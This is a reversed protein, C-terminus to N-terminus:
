YKSIDNKPVICRVKFDAPQIIARAPLSLGYSPAQYSQTSEILISSALLHFVDEYLYTDVKKKVVQMFGPDDRKPQNTLQRQQALITLHREDQDLITHEAIISLKEPTAKLKLQGNGPTKVTFQTHGQPSGELILELRHLFWISNGCVYVPLESIKRAAIAALGRQISTDLYSPLRSAGPFSRPTPLHAFVPIKMEVQSFTRLSTSVVQDFWNLSGVAIITDLEKKATHNAVSKIAQDIDTHGAISIDLRLKLSAKQIKETLEAQSWANAPEILVYKM